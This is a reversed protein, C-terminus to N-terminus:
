LTILTPRDYYSDLKSISIHQIRMNNSEARPLPGSRPGQGVCKLIWVQNRYYVGAYDYPQDVFPSIWRKMIEFMNDWKLIGPDSPILSTAYRGMLELTAFVSM